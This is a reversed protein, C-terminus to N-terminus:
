TLPFTSSSRASGGGSGTRWTRSTRGRRERRVMKRMRKTRQYPGASSRLPKLPKISSTPHNIELRTWAISSPPLRSSNISFAFPVATASPLASVSNPTSYYSAELHPKLSSIRHSSSNQNLPNQFSQLSLFHAPSPRREERGGRGRRWCDLLGVLGCMGNCVCCSLSFLRFFFIGVEFGL